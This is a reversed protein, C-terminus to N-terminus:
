LTKTYNKPRFYGKWGIHASLAGGTRKYVSTRTCDTVTEGGNNKNTTEDASGASGISEIITVLDKGEDYKYVIGTHGKGDSKRWVFIDGRQPIINSGAFDINNNGIAKRFETESVMNLTSMSKTNELVGLKHLYRMVFESCDLAEWGKATDTSRDGEQSYKIHTDAIKKMEELVGGGAEILEEIEAWKYEKEENKHNYAKVAFKYKNGAEVPKKFRWTKTQENKTCENDGNKGFFHRMENNETKSYNVCDIAISDAYSYSGGVYIFGDGENAELKIDITPHPKLTFRKTGRNDEEHSTKYAVIYVTYTGELNSGSKWIDSFKDSTQNVKSYVTEGDTTAGKKIYVNYHMFESGKKIDAEIKVRDGTNFKDMVNGVLSQNPSSLKFNYITTKKFLQTIADIILRNANNGGAM